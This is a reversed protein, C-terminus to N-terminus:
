TAEQDVAVEADRLVERLVNLRDLREVIAAPSSTTLTTQGSIGDVADCAQHILQLLDDGQVELEKPEFMGREGKRKRRMADDAAAALESHLRTFMSQVLPGLADIVQTCWEIIDTLPGRGLRESINGIHEQ